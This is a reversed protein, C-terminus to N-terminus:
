CCRMVTSGSRGTRVARVLPASEVFQWQAGGVDFSAWLVVGLALDALTAGLATWRAASPSLFLCAAAAVAPIALM